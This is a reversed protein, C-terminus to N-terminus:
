GKVHRDLFAILKDHIASDTWFQPDAHETDIFTLESTAGAKQLAQHFEEPQPYPATCDKRGSFLIVAPSTASVYTVPSAAKAKQQGEPADPDTGILMGHSSEAGPKGGGCVQKQDRTRTSLDYIGYYGVFAKVQADVGTEGLSGQLDAKDPALATMAALHAGASDGMLAFRQPDLGLEAAHARLYRVSAAVDHMPAPFTAGPALRYNPAAVAYGRDLLLQKTEVMRIDEARGIDGKDGSKWGGGHVWTVLPFPGPGQGTPLFLDLRHEDAGDGVYDIDLREPVPEAPAQSNQAPSQSGSQTTASDAAPTPQAQPGGCAALLVALGAGVGIELVRSKMTEGKTQM